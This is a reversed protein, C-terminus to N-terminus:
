GSELMRHALRLRASEGPTLTFGEDVLRKYCKVVERWDKAIRASEARSRWQRSLTERTHAYAEDACLQHAREWLVRQDEGLFAGLAGRVLEALEVVFAQQVEWQWAQWGHDPFLDEQGTAILAHRLGFSLPEDGRWSFHADLLGDRWDRSVAFSRESKAWTVADPSEEAVQFGLGELFAFERRLVESVPDPVGATHGEYGLGFGTSRGSEGRTARDRRSDSTGLAGYIRELRPLPPARRLSKM